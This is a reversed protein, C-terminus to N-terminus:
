EIVLEIHNYAGRREELHFRFSRGDELSGSGMVVSHNPRQSPTSSARNSNHQVWHLRTATGEVHPLAELEVITLVGDAFTAVLDEVSLVWVPVDDGDFRAQMPVRLADGFGDWAGPGNVALDEPLWFEKTHVTLPCV